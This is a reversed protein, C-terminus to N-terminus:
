VSPSQRHFLNCDSQGSQRSQGSRRRSCIQRSSGIGLSGNGNSRNVVPGAEPDRAATAVAQGLILVGFVIYGRRKVEYAGTLVGTAAVAVTMATAAARRARKLSLHM